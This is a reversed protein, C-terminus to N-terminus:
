EDDDDGKLIQLINDIVDDKGADYTDQWEDYTTITPDTKESECYERVRDERQKAKALSELTDKNATRQRSNRTDKNVDWERCEKLSKELMVYEVALQKHSWYELLYDIRKKDEM